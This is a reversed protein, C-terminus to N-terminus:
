YGKKIETCIYYKKEICYFDGKKFEYEKNTEIDMYKTWGSLMYQYERAETHFHVQETTYESYDTIGIELHEDRVFELEQPRKLNGALYQRSVGMLVEEIDKSQILIINGM